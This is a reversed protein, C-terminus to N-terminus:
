FFPLDDPKIADFGPVPAAPKEPALRKVDPVTYNGARIEEVPMMSHVRTREKIEGRETEYEEYRIVLGIKKGKLANEDFGAKTKAQEAFTTGNSEDVAELFAKMMGMITKDKKEDGTSKYSRVFSHTYPHEKSWADAYLASFEGEAIDYVINLYSKNAVNEVDTIECIYGGAPLKKRDSFTVPEADKYIKGFALM